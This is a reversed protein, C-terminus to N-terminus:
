NDECDNEFNDDGYEKLFDFLQLLLGDVKSKNEPTIKLEVISKLKDYEPLTQNAKIKEIQDNLERRKGLDDIDRIKCLFGVVVSIKGSYIKKDLDCDILDFKEKLDIANKFIDLKTKLGISTLGKDFNSMIELLFKLMPVAFAKVDNITANMEEIKKNFVVTANGAGLSVEKFYDKFILIVIIISAVLFIAKTQWDQKLHILVIQPLFLLLISISYNSLAIMKNKM